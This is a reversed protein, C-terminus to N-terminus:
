RAPRARARRRQGHESIPDGPEAPLEEVLQNSVVLHIGDALRMTRMRFRRAQTPSSCEYAHDWADGPALARLHDDYFPTLVPPIAARVSSGLVFWELVDAGDNDIAFRRWSRNIYALTADPGVGYITALDEELATLLPAGAAARFAPTTQITM